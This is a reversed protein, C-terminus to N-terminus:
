NAKTAGVLPDGAHENPALLMVAPLEHKKPTCNAGLVVPALLALTLTASLAAPLGCVTGRDPVPVAGPTPNLGVLTDNPLTTTPLLLAVVLTCNVLLPLEVSFMVEIVRVPV